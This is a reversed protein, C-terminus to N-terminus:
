TPEQTPRGGGRAHFFDSTAADNPFFLEVALEDLTVDRPTGFTTLTTFMSLEIDGVDLRYPVLLHPGPPPATWDVRARLEVINAYSTVEHEIAVLGADGTLMVLRHLQHLPYTAWQDFDVTHAALGDPHLSARFVNVPAASLHDPLLSTLASAAANALVVNWVRDLVIGPFPAHADLLRRLSTVVTTMSPDDLSTQEYRPAFGAALLMTNRERLPIDLHIGIADLLEPSPRSRGTEVFSLHRPSVGIEYAVDLQSRSRRHRWERVLPGVNSRRM